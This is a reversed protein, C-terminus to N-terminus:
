RREDREYRHKDTTFDKDSQPAVRVTAPHDLDGNITIQVPLFARIVEANTLLHQTVQATRIQSIGSALALPLLLQDALFPDIAGDTRLLELLPEAAEDAM